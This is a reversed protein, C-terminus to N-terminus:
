RSNLVVKGSTIVVASILLSCNCQNHPANWLKQSIVEL